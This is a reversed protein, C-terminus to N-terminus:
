GGAKKKAQVVEFEAPLDFEDGDDDDDELDANIDDLSRVAEGFSIGLRMRDLPTWGFKEAQRVLERELKLAQDGLPNIVPQGKSGRVLRAKRYGKMARLWEDYYVIFRELWPLDSERDILAGVPSTWITSWRDKTGQLFAGYPSRPLPPADGQDRGKFPIVTGSGGRQVRKDARM